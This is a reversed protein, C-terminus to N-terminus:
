ISSEAQLLSDTDRNLGSTQGRLPNETGSSIVISGCLSQLSGDVVAVQMIWGSGAEVVSANHLYFYQLSYQQYQKNRCCRCQSAVCKNFDAGGGKDCVLDRCDCM